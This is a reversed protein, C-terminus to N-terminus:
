PSPPVSLSVESPDRAHLRTAGLCQARQAHATSLIEVRLARSHAFLEPTRLSKLTTRESRVRFTTVADRCTERKARFTESGRLEVAFGKGEACGSCAEAATEPVLTNPRAQLLLSLSRTKSGLSRASRRM